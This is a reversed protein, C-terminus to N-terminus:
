QLTRVVMSRSNSSSQSCAPWNTRCFTRCPLTGVTIRALISANFNVGNAVVASFRQAAPMSRANGIIGEASLIPRNGPLGIVTALASAFVM